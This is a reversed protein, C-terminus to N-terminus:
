LDIRFSCSEFFLYGEIELGRAAFYHKREQPTHCLTHKKGKEADSLDSLDPKVPEEPKLEAKKKLEERVKEKKEELKQLLAKEEPVTM